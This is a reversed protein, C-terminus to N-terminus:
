YRFVGTLGFTRPRVTVGRYNFTSASDRYRGYEPHQNTLNQAFVSLDFGGFKVGFRLDLNNSAPARPITFDTTPVPDLPTDDHSLYQYDVRFYTDRNFATFDYQGSLAIQWPAIPLPEGKSRIVISNAGFTNTTFKADAYGVSAGLTLGSTVRANITLDFGQSRADGFNAAFPTNCNPLTGGSQINKWDIRYVSGDIALRGGFMRTKGGVEYSWVSDPKIVRPALGLGLAALDAACQSSAAGTTSGPRFGKAVSAYLLTDPTAQYSVGFKPTVPSASAHSDTIRPTASGSVPGAFFSHSDYSVKSVRVGGTVKLKDTLKFDVQGFGAVEEDVSTGSSSLLLKGQYLPTGFIADITIPFGASYSLIDNIFTSEVDYSSKERARQYYLGLVWTLRADPDNSQLRLEQTFTRQRSTVYGPSYVNRLAAPPPITDVGSGTHFILAALSTFSSIDLTTSDYVSDKNRSLYATNSVIDVGGLSLVAKLSPLWFKDDTPTRIQNATVFKTKAPDSWHEWYVSTDNSHFKQFFVSPSITLSETPQWKLATRMVYTESSNVDSAVDRGDFWDVKDVFGGDRRYWGSVRFGLQDQAIPGGVAVGAEYSGDGDKTNALEGRAYVSYDTLSPTPTIFRITGGESGAGFLTGQPGRLVEVRELDFIRPYPNSSSYNGSPRVQVPTEDIYVGVTATGSGSSIGRISVDSAGGNGRTGPTFTLGPTLRAIDRFERVSQRDMQDQSYASVSIPVKSLSEERKTATVVIEAVGESDVSATQSREQSAPAASQGTAQAYAPVGFALAMASVASNLARKRDLRM